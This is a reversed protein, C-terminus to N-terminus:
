REGSTADVHKGGIDHRRTGASAALAYTVGSAAKDEEGVRVAGRAEGIEVQQELRHVPRCLLTGLKRFKYQVEVYAGM